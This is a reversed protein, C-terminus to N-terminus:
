LGEPGVTATWDQYPLTSAAHVKIIPGVTINEWRGPLPPKTEPDGPVWVRKTSGVFTTTFATGTTGVAKGDVSITGNVPTGTESDTATLMCTVATGLPISQPDPLMHVDLRYSNPDDAWSVRYIAKFKGPVGSFKAGKVKVFVAVHDSYSSIAAGNLSANGGTITNIHSEPGVYERAVAMKHPPRPGPPTLNVTVERETDSPDIVATHAVLAIGYVSEVPPSGRTIPMFGDPPHIETYRAPCDADEENHGADWDQAAGQYHNLDGGSFGHWFDNWVTSIAHPIDTVLSGSILGYQGDELTKYPDFPWAVAPANPLRTTWDAPRHTAGTWGYKYYTAPDDPFGNLEVQIAPTAVYADFSNPTLSNLGNNLIDGVKFFTTWDIQLQDLWHPDPEFFFHWDPDVPNMAPDSGDSALAIRHIWGYLEVVQVGNPLTIGHVDSRPFLKSHPPQWQPTLEPPFVMSSPTQSNSVLRVASFAELSGAPVVNVAKADLGMTTMAEETPIWVKQRGSMFWVEAQDRARVLTLPAPTTPIPALAGDPVVVVNAWSYGCAAFEAPSPILIKAGGVMVYVAPNDKEKVLAGNSTPVQVPTTHPIPRPIAHPLDPGDALVDPQPTAQSPPVPDPNVMFLRRQRVRSSFV